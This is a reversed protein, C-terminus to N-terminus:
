AIAGRAAAAQGQIAGDFTELLRRDADAQPRPNSHEYHKNETITSLYRSRARRLHFSCHPRHVTNGPSVGQNM